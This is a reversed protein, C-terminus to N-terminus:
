LILNHLIFHLFFKLFFKDGIPFGQGVCCFDLVRGDASDLDKLLADILEVISSMDLCFAKANFM